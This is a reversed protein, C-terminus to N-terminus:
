VKRRSLSYDAKYLTSPDQNPDKMWKGTSEDLTGKRSMIEKCAQKLSLDPDQGMKWSGGTSLIRLDNLADIIGDTDNAAIADKLEQLEEELMRLEAEGVFETLNREKNFAIISQTPTM